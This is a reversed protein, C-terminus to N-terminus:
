CAFHGMYFHGGFPVVKGDCLLEGPVARGRWADEREKLSKTVVDSEDFVVGYSMVATGGWPIFAVLPPGSTIEFNIGDPHGARIRAAYVPREIMFRIFAGIYPGHYVLVLGVIPVLAPFMAALYDRRRLRRVLVVVAAVPVSLWLAFLVPGASAALLPWFFEDVFTLGIFFAITTALSVCVVTRFARWGTTRGGPVATVVNSM